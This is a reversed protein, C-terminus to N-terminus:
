QIRACDVEITVTTASLSTCTASTATASEGGVGVGIGAGCVPAGIRYLGAACTATCSTALACSNTASTSYGAYLVGSVTASSTVLLGSGGPGAGTITMSSTATFASSITTLGSLTTVNAQTAKLTPNPYTGALDGGAAGTPTATVGTLHSGDGFYSGNLLHLGTLDLKMADVAGPVNGMGLAWDYIGISGSAEAGGNSLGLGALPAFTGGTVTLSSPGPSNGLYTNVADGPAVLALANDGNRVQANFGTYAYQNDPNAATLLRVKAQIDNAIALANADAGLTITQTAEGNISFTLTEGGATTRTSIAPNSISDGGLNDGTVFNIHANTGPALKGNGGGTGNYGGAIGATIDVNAGGGDTIGASIVASGIGEVRAQQGNTARNYAAMVMGGFFNVNGKYAGISPNYLGAGAFLASNSIYGNVDVSGVLLGGPATITSTGIGKVAGVVIAGDSSGFNQNPATGFFEGTQLAFEAATATSRNFSNGLYDVHWLPRSDVWPPNVAYSLTMTDIHLASPIYRNTPEDLLTFNFQPQIPSHSTVGEFFTGGTSAPNYQEFVFGQQVTADTSDQVALFTGGNLEVNTSFYIGLDGIPSKIFRTTIDGTLKASGGFFASATVSSSLVELPANLVEAKGATVDFDFTPKAVASEINNQGSMMFLRFHGGDEHYGIVAGHDPSAFGGDHTNTSFSIFPVDHYNARIAIGNFGAIENPSGFSAIIGTNDDGNFRTVGHTSVDVMPTNASTSVQLLFADAVTPNVIQFPMNRVEAKGATVDVDLTKSTSFDEPHDNARLSLRYHGGDLEYSLNGESHVGDTSFLVSISDNAAGILAINQAGFTNQASGFTAVLGGTSNSKVSLVGITSYALGYNATASTSAQFIFIDAPNGDAIAQSATFLNYANTLAFTGALAFVAGSQIPDTSGSVAAADVAARLCNGSADVGRCVFGSPAPTGPAALAGATPVAGVLNAATLNTILSGNAAPYLGGGSLQVLQGAGNFTNGVKTVIAPNLQYNPVFNSPDALVTNTAATVGTFPLTTCATARGDAGFTCSPYTSSNGYTGPAVGSAAVSSVPINSPWAGPTLAAASLTIGGPIAGATLQAVPLAINQASIGYIRGDLRDTVTLTQAAGGFTGSPAGTNNLSSVVVDSPWAGPRLNNAGLLVGDPLAGPTIGTSPVLIQFQNAQDIRGDWRIHFQNGQTPGGYWGPAVGSATVSSAPISTPLPAAILNSIAMPATLHSAGGTIDGNVKVGAVQTLSADTVGVGSQLTGNSLASLPVASFNTGALSPSATWAPAAGGGNSQLVGQSGPSALTAMVGTGSFYPVAGAGVTSWNQGTGGYQPAVTTAQWAGSAVAGLGTIGPYAGAVRAAPVNGSAIASANLATILHGDGTFTTATLNGASFASAVLTGVTLTGDVAGSATHFQAGSQLASQNFICSLCLDAYARGAGGIFLLAAILAARWAGTLSKTNM